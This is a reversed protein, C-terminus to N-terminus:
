PIVPRNPKFSDQQRILFLKSSSMTGFMKKKGFDSAVTPFDTM